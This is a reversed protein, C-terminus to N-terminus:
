VGEDDDNDGSVNCVRRLSRPSLWFIVIGSVDASGTGFAWSFGDVLCDDRVAPPGLPLLDLRHVVWGDRRQSAFRMFPTCFGVIPLGAEKGQVNPRTSMMQVRSYGRMYGCTSKVVRGLSTTWWYRTWNSMAGMNCGCGIEARLGGGGSARRSEWCLWGILNALGM